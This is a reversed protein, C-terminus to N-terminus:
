SGKPTNSYNVQLSSTRGTRTGVGYETFVVDQIDTASEPTQFIIEAELKQCTAGDFYWRWIADDEGQMDIESGARVYPALTAFFDDEGGLKEGTFQLFTLHGETNFAPVWRWACLADRVDSAQLVANKDVWACCYKGSATMTQLDELVLGLRQKDIFIDIRRLDMCYGM